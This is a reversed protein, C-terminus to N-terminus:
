LNEEMRNKTNAAQDADPEAGCRCLLSMVIFMVGLTVSGGNELKLLDECDLFGALIGSVIEALVMQGVCVIMAGIMLPYLGNLDIGAENM